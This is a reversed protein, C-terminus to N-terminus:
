ILRGFWRLSLGSGLLLLALSAAVFYATLDRNERRHALQVSLRRYIEGLHPADTATFARGGSAHAVAALTQPDPPVPQSAASTSKDARARPRAPITGQATGLSVTFIPIHLRAAERAAALPDSGSTSKGDSLLVIVGTAGKASQAGPRRLVSVAMAIASGM